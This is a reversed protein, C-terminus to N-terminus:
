DDEQLAQNFVAVLRTIVKLIKGQVTLNTKAGPWQMMGMLSWIGIVSRSVAVVIATTSLNEFQQSMSYIENLDVKGDKDDAGGLATILLRLDEANPNASKKTGEADNLVTTEFTKAVLLISSRTQAPSWASIPVPPKDDNDGPPSAFFSSARQERGLYSGQEPSPEGPVM